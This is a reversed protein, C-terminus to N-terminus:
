ARRMPVPSAATAPVPCDTGSDDPVGTTGGDGSVSGLRGSDTGGDAPGHHSSCASGTTLALIAVAALWLSIGVPTRQGGSAEGWSGELPVTM